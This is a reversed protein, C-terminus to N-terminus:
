DEFLVALKDSPVNKMNKEEVLGCKKCVRKIKHYIYQGAYYNYENSYAWYGKHKCKKNKM